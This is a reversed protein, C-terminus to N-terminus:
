WAPRGKIESQYLNVYTPTTKTESVSLEVEMWSGELRMKSPRPLSGRFENRIKKYNRNVYAADDDILVESISGHYTTCQISSFSEDNGSLVVNDYKFSRASKDMVIYSLTAPYWLGQFFGPDGLGHVYGLSLDLASFATMRERNEQAITVLFSYKGSFVGKIDNFGLTFRYGLGGNFSLYTMKATPEYGGSIGNSHIPNDQDILDNNYDENLIARYGDVISDVSLNMDKTMRVVFKRKGDFWTYSEPTDILSFQHSNGIYRNTIDYRNFLEGTGMQVPFGFDSSTMQRESIPIYSVADPQWCILYDKNDKINNGEGHRPDLERYDLSAFTRFSDFREGITKFSSYRVMVDNHSNITSATDPLGLYIDGAFSSSYAPNYIFQETDVINSGSNYHLGGTNIVAVYTSLEQWKRGERWDLNMRTEVPTIFTHGILDSAGLTDDAVAKNFDYLCVYHDGGFLQIGSVIYEGGSVIDALFTADVEQYHGMFIYQQNALGADNADSYGPQNRYIDVMSIIPITQAGSRTYPNGGASEDLDTVLLTCRGMKANKSPPLGYAAEAKFINAANASDFPVDENLFEFPTAQKIRNEVGVQANNGSFASQNTTYCKQNYKYGPTVDLKGLYNFDMDSWHVPMMHRNTELYDGAIVPDFAYQSEPSMLVYYNPARQADASFTGGVQPYIYFESAVYEYMPMLIGSGIKTDPMPARVISFGSIQTRIDTIDLDNVILSFIQGNLQTYEYDYTGATSIRGYDKSILSDSQNRRPLTYDGLYRAYFPKGELDWFVVGLRVVTNSAYSKMYHAEWPDKYNFYGSHLDTWYVPNSGNDLYRQIRRYPIASGSTLEAIDPMQHFGGSGIVVPTGDYETYGAGVSFNYWMGGLLFDPSIEGLNTIPPTDDLRPEHLSEYPDYRVDLVIEEVKHTISPTARSTEFRAGMDLEPRHEINIMTNYSKIPVMDKCKMITISRIILDDIPITGLTEGGTIEVDMTSSIIDDDFCIVGPEIVNYAPSFFYVVRIRDYDTDVDEIELDIFRNSVRASSGGVIEHYDYSNDEDIVHIPNTLYSWDTQYGEENYYQFAVFYTGYKLQGPTGLKIFRIVGAGEIIPTFDIFKLDQPDYPANGVNIVRPKNNYDTLYIRQIDDNEYYGWMARIPDAGSYNFDSPYSAVLVFSDWDDMDDNYVGKYLSVPAGTYGLYAMFYLDNRINCAAIVRKGLGIEDFDIVRTTGAMNTWSFMGNGIDTLQGNLSSRLTGDPQANPHTDSSVGKTIRNIFEM